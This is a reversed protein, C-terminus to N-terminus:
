VWVKIEEASELKHTADDYNVRGGGRAKYKPPQIELWIKFFPPSSLVEAKSPTGPFSPTVKKLPTPTAIKGYFIFIDLSLCLKYSFINKEKM